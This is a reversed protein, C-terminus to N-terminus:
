RPERSATLWTSPFRKKRAGVARAIGLGLEGRGQECERLGHDRAGLVFV